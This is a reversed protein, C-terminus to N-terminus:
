IKGGRRNARHAKWTALFIGIPGAVLAPPLPAMPSDTLEHPRLQASTIPSSLHVTSSASNGSDSLSPFQGQTHSILLQDAALAPTGFGTLLLFLVAAVSRASPPCTRGNRKRVTCPIVLAGLLGVFSLSWVCPISGRRHTRTLGM